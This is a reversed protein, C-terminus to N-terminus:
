VMAKVAERFGVGHAAMFVGISDSSKGCVYCYTFNKRIDMNDGEGGHFCCKARGNRGVEVIQGIPYERAREIMEPTIEDVRGGARAEREKQYKDIQKVLHKAEDALLEIEVCHPDVRYLEIYRAKNDRFMELLLKEQSKLYRDRAARAFEAESEKWDRIEKKIKLVEASRQREAVRIWDLIEEHLKAAEDQENEPLSTLWEPVRMIRLIDISKKMNM